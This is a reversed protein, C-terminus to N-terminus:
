FVFRVAGQLERQSYANSIQGFSANGVNIATTRPNYFNPHNAVNFAELRLEIFKSDHVPINRVLSTDLNIFHPGILSNRGANGFTGAPQVAYASTNFWQKVTRIKTGNPNPGNPDGTVNPRDAGNYSGSTNSAADYVTFPRGAQYSFIGSLQWGGVVDALLGRQVFRQGNGFPLKAVPAFVLRQRTDFDSLGYEGKLNHSDQPTGSSSDSGSGQGPANDLSKSYTYSLLYSIGDSYNKQLKAQLSNFNSSARSQV